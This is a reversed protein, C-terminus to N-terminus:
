KKSLNRGVYRTKLRMSKGFIVDNIENMLNLDDFEKHIWLSDTVLGGGMGGAVVEGTKRIEYFIGISDEYNDPGWAIADLDKLLVRLENEDCKVLKLPCTLYIQGGDDGEFIMVADNSNKAEEVSSVFQTGMSHVEDLIHRLPSRGEPIESKENEKGNKFNM